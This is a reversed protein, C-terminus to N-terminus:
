YGKETLWDQLAQVLEDSFPQSLQKCLDDTIRLLHTLNPIVATKLNDPPDNNFIENFREMNQDAPVLADKDGFVFLGPSKIKVLVDSPDYDIIRPYFGLEGVPLFKGISAALRFQKVAGAVKRKFEEGTFGQCRYRNEDANESQEWVTTTPGALSIFFAVDEHQSATLTVIWGGQSHGIVGLNSPDMSKHEKLFQVAAYLDDARGQFDQHKWNGESEGMGRKNVYLVAMDRSLFVDQVYKQPIKTGLYDQYTNPGSVPSFIVAPKKEKGGTPILLDAELKVDGSPILVHERQIDPSTVSAEWDRAAQSPPVEGPQDFQYAKYALIGVAVILVAMACRLITKKNIRKM